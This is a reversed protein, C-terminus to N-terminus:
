CGGAEDAKVFEADGFTELVPRIRNLMREVGTLVHKSSGETTLLHGDLGHRAALWLSADLIEPSTTTGVEEDCVVTVRILATQLPTDVVRLQADAVRVEVTDCRESLRVAWSVSSRAPLLGVGVLCDVTRHYEDADHFAPPGWSSAVAQDTHQALQRSRLVCGRRLPSNVSLALLLPLVECVRCLARIREEDGHVKVPVHLGNVVPVTALRGLLDSVDDYHLSSSIQGPGALAFPAGIGVVVAEDPDLQTLM